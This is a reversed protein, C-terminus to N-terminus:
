CPTWGVLDKSWIKYDHIYTPTQFYVCILNKRILNINLLVKKAEATLIECFPSEFEIRLFFISLKVLAHCAHLLQRFSTSLM